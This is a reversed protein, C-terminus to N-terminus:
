KTKSTENHKNLLKIFEQETVQTKNQINSSVYFERSGKVFNFYIEDLLLEFALESQWIPLDNDICLQKMRDCQEQSKMLVYTNFITLEM